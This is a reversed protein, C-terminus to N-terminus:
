ACVSGLIGYGGTDHEFAFARTMTAPLFSGQICLLHVQLATSAHRKTLTRRRVEAKRYFAYIDEVYETVHNPNGRDDWDIDPLTEEAEMMDVEGCAEQLCVVPVDGGPLPVTHASRWLTLPWDEGQVLM